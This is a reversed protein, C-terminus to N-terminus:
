KGKRLREYSGYILKSVYTSSRFTAVRHRECLSVLIQCHDDTLAQNSRIIKHLDIDM